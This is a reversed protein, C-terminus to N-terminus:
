RRAVEEGPEINAHAKGFRHGAGPRKTREHRLHESM